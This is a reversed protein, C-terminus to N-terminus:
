KKQYNGPHYSYGISSCSFSDNDDIDTDDKLTYAFLNSKALLRRRVDFYSQGINSPKRIPYFESISEDGSFVDSITGVPSISQFRNNNNNKHIHDNMFSGCQVEIGQIFRKRNSNPLLILTSRFIEHQFSYSSNSSSNLRLRNGYNPIVILRSTYITM